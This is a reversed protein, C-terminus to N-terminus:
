IHKNHTLAADAEATKGRIERHAKKEEIRNHIRM